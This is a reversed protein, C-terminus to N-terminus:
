CNCCIVYTDLLKSIDNENEEIFNIVWDLFNSKFLLLTTTVYIYFFIDFRWIVISACYILSAWAPILIIIVM